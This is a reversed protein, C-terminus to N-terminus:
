GTCSDGISSAMVGSAEFVMNGDMFAHADHIADMSGLTADMSDLNADMSGLTADMKNSDSVSIGLNSALVSEM